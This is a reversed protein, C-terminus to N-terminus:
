DLKVSDEVLDYTVRRIADWTEAFCKEIEPDQKHLEYQEYRTLILSIEAVPNYAAKEMVGKIDTFCKKFESYNKTLGHESAEYKKVIYAVDSLVQAYIGGPNSGMEQFRRKLDENINSAEQLKKLLKKKEEALEKERYQSEELLKKLRGLESTDEVVQAYDQETPASVVV